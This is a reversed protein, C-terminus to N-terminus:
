MGRVQQIILQFLDICKIYHESSLKENLHSSLFIILCDFVIRVLSGVGEYHHRQDNKIIFMDSLSIDKFLFDEKKSELMTQLTILCLYSTDEQYDRFIVSVLTLFQSISIEKFNIEYYLYLISRLEQVSKKKREPKKFFLEYFFGSTQNLEEFSDTWWKFRISIYDQLIKKEKLLINKQFHILISLCLSSNHKMKNTSKGNSIIKLFGDLKFNHFYDLLINSEMENGILDGGSLLIIVFLLLIQIQKFDSCEIFINEIKKLLNQFFDDCNKFGSVKKSNIKFIGLTIIDSFSSWKMKFISRFL